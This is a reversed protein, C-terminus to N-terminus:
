DLGLADEARSTQVPVISVTESFCHQSLTRKIPVIMGSRSWMSIAISTCVANKCAPMLWSNNASGCSSNLVTHLRLRSVARLTTHNDCFVSVTAGVLQLDGPCDSNGDM